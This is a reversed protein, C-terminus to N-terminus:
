SGPIWCRWQRRMPPRGDSRTSPGEDGGDNAAPGILDGAGLLEGASRGGVTVSRVLVGELVLLGLGGKDLGDEIWSLGPDSANIRIARAIAGRAASIFEEGWLGGALDPDADLM